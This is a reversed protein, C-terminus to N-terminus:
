LWLIYWYEYNNCSYYSWKMKNIRKKWKFFYFLYFWSSVLLHSKLSIKMNNIRNLIADAVWICGGGGDIYIEWETEWLEDLWKTIEIFEEEYQKKLYFTKM